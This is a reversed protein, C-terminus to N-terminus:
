LNAELASIHSLFKVTREIQYYYKFPEPKTVSAKSGRVSGNFSQRLGFKIFPTVNKGRIQETKMGSHPGPSLINCRLGKFFQLLERKLYDYHNLSPDLTEPRFFPPRWSISHSLPRKMIYSPTPFTLPCRLWMKMVVLRQSTEVCSGNKGQLGRKRALIKLSLRGVRLGKM